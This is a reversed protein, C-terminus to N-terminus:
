LTALPSITVFAHESIGVHKVDPAFGFMLRREATANM